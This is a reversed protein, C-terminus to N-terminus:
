RLSSFAGLWQFDKFTNQADPIRKIDRAAVEANFHFGSVTGDNFFMMARALTGGDRDDGGGSARIASRGIGAGSQGLESKAVRDEVTESATMSEASVAESYGDVGKGHHGADNLLRLWCKLFIRAGVVAGSLEPDCSVTRRSTAVRWRIQV